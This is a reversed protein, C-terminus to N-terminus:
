YSKFADAKKWWNAWGEFVLQNTAVVRCKMYNNRPFSIGVDTVMFWGSVNLKLIYIWLKQGPLLGYQDIEFEINISETGYQDLLNQAEEAALAESDLESDEFLNEYVGCGSTYLQMMYKISDENRNSVLVDFYPKYTIELTDTVLLKPNNVEDITQNQTITDEDDDYFWQYWGPIPVGPSSYRIEEDNYGRRGVTQTVTNKKISVISSVKSDLVFTRKIGDGVFSKVVNGGTDRGARVWQVNRYRDLSRNCKLNKYNEQDSDGIDFPTRETYTSFVQLSKYPDMRWLLGARNCLEDICQKITKYEFTIEDILFYAIGGTTIFELENITSGARFFHDLIIEKNYIIDILIEEITANLYTANVLIRDFLKSDDLCDINLILPFDGKAPLQEEINNITGSFIRTGNWLLVVSEGLYHHNGVNAYGPFPNVMGLQGSDIITFSLKRANNVSIDLDVSDLKVISTIESDSILIVLYSYSHALLGFDLSSALQTEGIAYSGLIM